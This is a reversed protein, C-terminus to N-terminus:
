PKLCVKWLCVSTLPQHLWVSGHQFVSPSTKQGLSVSFGKQQHNLAAIELPFGLLSSLPPVSLFAMGGWAMGLPLPLSLHAKSSAFHSPSPYPIIQFLLVSCCHMPGVLLCSSSGLLFQGPKSLATHRGPQASSRLPAQFAM